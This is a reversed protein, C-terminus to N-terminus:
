QYLKMLNKYTATGIAQYRVIPVPQSFKKCYWPIRPDVKFLAQGKPKESKSKSKFSAMALSKFLQQVVPCNRLIFANAHSQLNKLNRKVSEAQESGIASCKKILTIEFDDLRDFNLLM